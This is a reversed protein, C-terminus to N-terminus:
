YLVDTTLGSYYVFYEGPIYRLLYSAKIAILYLRLGSGYGVMTGVVEM